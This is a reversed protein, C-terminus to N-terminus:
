DPTISQLFEEFGAQDRTIQLHGDVRTIQLAPCFFHAEGVFFHPSGVVGRARGADWEDLTRQTGTPVSVGALAAIETLVDPQSIDRGQEFLADRLLLSVREGTAADVEYAAAALELAPLSTAPFHAEEFGVFLDPTVQERLDVIEEAIFAPDLPKGNVLELPWSRVHLTFDAGTEDRREILRRLGVHTFPCGVDAFVEVVTM